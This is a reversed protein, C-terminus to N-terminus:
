GGRRSDVWFWVNPATEGSSRLPCEDVESDQSRHACATRKARLGYLQLNTALATSVRMECVGDNGSTRM